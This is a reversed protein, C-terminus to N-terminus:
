GGHRISPGSLFLQSCYLVDHVTTALQNYCARQMAATTITQTLRDDTSDDCLTRFLATQWKAGHWLAWYMAKQHFASM